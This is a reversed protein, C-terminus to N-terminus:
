CRFEQQGPGSVQSLGTENVAQVGDLTGQVSVKEGKLVRLGFVGVLGKRM